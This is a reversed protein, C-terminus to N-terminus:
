KKLLEAVRELRVRVDKAIAAIDPNDTLKL